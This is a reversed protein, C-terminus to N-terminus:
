AVDRLRAMPIRLAKSIARAVRKSVTGREIAKQITTLHIEGEGGDKTLLEALERFTQGNDILRQVKTLDVKM